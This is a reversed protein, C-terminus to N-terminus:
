EIELPADGNILNGILPALSLVQGGGICCTFHLKAPSMCTPLHCALQCTVHLHKFHHTTQARSTCLITYVWVTTSSQTTHGRVHAHATHASPAM